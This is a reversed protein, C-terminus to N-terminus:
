RFFLVIDLTEAHNRDNDTNIKLNSANARTYKIYEHFVFPTNGYKAEFYKLRLLQRKVTPDDNWIAVVPLEKTHEICEYIRTLDINYLSM